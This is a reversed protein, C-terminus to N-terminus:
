RRQRMAERWNRKHESKSRGFSELHIELDAVSCFYCPCFPCKVLGTKEDLSM